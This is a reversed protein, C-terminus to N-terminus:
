EQNKIDQVIIDLQQALKIRNERRQSIIPMGQAVSILSACLILRQARWSLGAFREKDIRLLEPFEKDAPYDILQMYANYITEDDSSGSRHRQLWDETAPFGVPFLPMGLLYLCQLKKKPWCGVMEM